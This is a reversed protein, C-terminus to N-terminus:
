EFTDWKLMLRAEFVSSNLNLDFFYEHQVATSGDILFPESSALSYRNIAENAILWRMAASYDFTVGSKSRLRTPQSITDQEIWYFNGSRNVNEQPHYFFGGYGDGVQTYLLVGEHFLRQVHEPLGRLVKAPTEWLTEMQYIANNLDQPKVLFSDDVGWAGLGLLMERHEEPLPYGLRTEAEDIELESAPEDLEFFCTSEAAVEEYKSEFSEKADLLKAIRRSWPSNPDRLPAIMSTMDVIQRMCEGTTRVLGRHYHRWQIDGQIRIQTAKSDLEFEGIFEEANSGSFTHRGVLDQDLFLAVEGCYDDRCFTTIRVRNQM